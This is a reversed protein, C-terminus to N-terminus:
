PRGTRRRRRWLSVLSIAVLAGDFGLVGRGPMTCGCGGPCEMHSSQSAAWPPPVDHPGPPANGPSRTCGPEAGTVTVEGYYAVEGCGKESCDYPPSFGYRYTGAPVCEDVYAGTVCHDFLLVVEGTAVNQRLMAAGDGCTRNTGELRVTVTGPVTTSATVLYDAGSNCDARADAAASAIAAIAMVACVLVDWAVGSAVGRARGVLGIGM